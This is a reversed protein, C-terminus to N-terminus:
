FDYFGTFTLTKIKFTLLRAKLYFDANIGVRLSNIHHNVHGAIQNLNKRFLSFSVIQNSTM